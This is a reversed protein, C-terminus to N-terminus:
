LKEPPFVLSIDFLFNKLAATQALVLFSNPSPAFRMVRVLVCFIETKVHFMESNQEISSASHDKGLFYQYVNFCILM